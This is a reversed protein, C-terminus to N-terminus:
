GPCNKIAQGCAVIIAVIFIVFIIVMSIYLWMLVKGFISKKYRVRVYIMLAWAAMFSISGIGGRVIESTTNGSLNVSITNIMKFFAVELSPVVFFCILSVICLINAKKRDENTYINPDVSVNQPQQYSYQPAQGPMVGPNYVPVQDNNMYGNNNQNNQDM